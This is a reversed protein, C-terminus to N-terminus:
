PTPHPNANVENLRRAFFAFAVKANTSGRFRYDTQFLYDERLTRRAAEPLATVETAKLDYQAALELLRRRDAETLPNFILWFGVRDQTAWLMMDQETLYEGAFVTPLTRALGLLEKLRARAHDAVLLFEVAICLDGAGGAVNRSLTM